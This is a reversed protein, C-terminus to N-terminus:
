GGKGHQPAVYQTALDSAKLPQVIKLGGPTAKDPQAILVERTAPDGPKSYDLSPFIGDTDISTTQRFAKQIGDRSLDGSDCAKKLVATYAVAAGYGWDVGGNPIDKPYKATYAKRVTTAGASDGSFPQWSAAVYLLKTLAPGAATDLLQPAYVPNNGLLPVNLGISADVAAASATQTPTATLMIAKVGQNKLAAVQSSVDTATATIKQGVVKLGLKKAAFKSGLYGNEGYEGELYIHGIKDGAKVVNKDKLFQIGNIMEVDYTAGVIMNNPNDLITSAWSVPVTFLKDTEINQKLAANIPSGLLQEMGLVNPAMDAYLGVAKQVDYGDDKINLKIKRKCVGGQANLKNFYLQAGQTVSKGLVAFVGSLDTLVGLTITSDTVGPGTKVSNPDGSKGSSKDKAKTSCASAVLVIAVAGAAIVVRVSHRRSRASSTSRGRMTSRNPIM